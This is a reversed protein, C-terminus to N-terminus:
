FEADTLTYGDSPGIEIIDHTLGPWEGTAMGHAYREAAIQMMADGERLMAPTLRYIGVGYPATKEVAIFIFDAGDFGDLYHAAQAAYKWKYVASLFARPSADDTTKIDFITDGCVLDAKAKCNVGRGDWFSPVETKGNAIASAIDPIALVSDRMRQAADAEAQTLIPLGTAELAAKEAKGEKTTWNERKIVFVDQRHPELILAHAVTGIAMAATQKPPNLMYERGHAASRVLQKALSASLAPVSFYDVDQM